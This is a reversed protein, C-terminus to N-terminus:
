MGLGKSDNMKDDWYEKTTHTKLKYDDECLLCCFADTSQTAEPDRSV